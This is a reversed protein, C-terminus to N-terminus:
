PEEGWTARMREAIEAVSHDGRAIEVYLDAQSETAASVYGNASYVMVTVLYALRKNGDVLPHTRSVSDVIAAVKEHIGPYAEVGYVTTAARQICSELLGVDGNRIIPRPTGLASLAAYAEIVGEASPLRIV